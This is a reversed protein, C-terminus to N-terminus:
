WSVPSELVRTKYTHNNLRLEWTRKGKSQYAKCYEPYDEALLKAAREIIRDTRKEQMGGGEKYYATNVTINELRISGQEVDFTQFARRYDEKEDSNVIHYDVGSNVLGYCSGVPLFLGETVRDKMFFPNRAAYIGWLSKGEKECWEFGKKAFEYFNTEHLKKGDKSLKEFAKIDDDVFVIETDRPYYRMIFNRNGTLTPASDVIKLKLGSLERAYADHESPDSLFVTVDQMNVGARILSCITNAFIKDSRRYTPIAIQM